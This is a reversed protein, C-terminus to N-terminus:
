LSTTDEVIITGTIYKKTITSAFGSSIVVDFYCRGTPLTTTTTSAMSIIVASNVTDFEVVFPYESTSTPYKRLKSVGVFSSNIGIPSGDNNLITFTADFDTGKQIKLNNVEYVSM